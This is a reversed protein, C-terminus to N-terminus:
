VWAVIGTIICVLFSSLIMVGNLRLNGPVFNQHALYSMSGIESKMPVGIKTNRGKKKRVMNWLMWFYFCVMVINFVLLVVAIVIKGSKVIGVLIILKTWFFALPPIGMQTFLALIGIRKLWVTVQSNLEGEHEGVEGRYSSFFVPHAYNLITILLITNISYIIYFAWIILTWQPKMQALEVNYGKFCGIGATLWGMAALSSCAMFKKAHPTTFAAMSAIVL